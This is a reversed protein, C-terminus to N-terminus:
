ESESESIDRSSTPSAKTVGVLAPRLLRGNLSYGPQILQAVSGTPLSPDDVEFMAQHLHPDFKEHLPIIKQVGYRELIVSFDRALLTIGEVVAGQGAEESGSTIARELNDIVSLLETVFGQLAFLRADKIERDARKRMNEAEALSRLMKSHAEAHMRELEAIKAQLAPLIDEDAPINTKQDSSDSAMMVDDLDLNDHHAPSKTETMEPIEHDRDGDEVGDNEKPHEAVMSMTEM